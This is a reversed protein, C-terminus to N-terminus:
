ELDETIARDGEDDPLLRLEHRAEGDSGVRLGAGDQMREVLALLSPSAAGGDTSGRTVGVSRTRSQRWILHEVEDLRDDTRGLCATSTGLM